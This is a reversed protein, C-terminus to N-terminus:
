SNVFNMMQHFVSPIDRVGHVVLLVQIGKGSPRYIVFYNEVPFSRVHSAPDPRSVEMEPHEAYLRCKSDIIQMIASPLSHKQVGISDFLDDLNKAVSRTWEVIPM